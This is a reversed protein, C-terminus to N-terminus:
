SNALVCIEQNNLQRNYIRFEDISGLFSGSSITKNDTSLLPSKTSDLSLLKDTKLKDTTYGSNRLTSQQISIGESSLSRFIDPVTTNTTTTTNYPENNDFPRVKTKIVNLRTVHEVRAMNHTGVITAKNILHIYTEFTNFTCVTSPNCQF